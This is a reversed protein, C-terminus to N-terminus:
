QKKELNLYNSFVQNGTGDCIVSAWLLVNFINAGKSKKCKEERHERQVM